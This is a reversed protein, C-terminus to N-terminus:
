RNRSTRPGARDSDFCVGRHGGTVRSCTSLSEVVRTDLIEIQEVAAALVLAPPGVHVRWM